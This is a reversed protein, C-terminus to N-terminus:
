TLLHTVWQHVAPWTDATLHILMGLSAALKLGTGVIFALFSGIGVVFAKSRNRNDHLLEGIIAGVFPGLLLGIPPFVFCGVLAGVTAGVAGARSGGFRRAMVAPLFYDAVSVVITIVAWIILAKTGLNSHPAFSACLLGVYSLPPGPLGPVLSGIVGILVLLFALITLFIGM